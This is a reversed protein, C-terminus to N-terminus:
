GWQFQDAQGPPFRNEMKERDIKFDELNLLFRLVTAKKINQPVKQGDTIYSVSKGKEALASIVNGIHRTEDWKTILVSLYNFPEFQQLIEEIDSAKTSASLVLHLEAWKPCGELLEKMEGLMVADKPGKGFTDVLFLDTVESYAAIENKLEQRNKACFVPLKMIKAFSELQEIAGIRYQDITIMRVAIAPKEQIKVGYHAALKAITTTKGVGTPGVFVMVRNRRSIAPEEYISISEGIWQLLQDQVATFNDLTEFPLEKRLRELMKNIYKESFDNNKLMQAAQAFAPHDENKASSDIKEKIEQLSDLIQQQKQLNEKEALIQKSNRGVIALVKEKAEELDMAPNQAPQEGAGVKPRPQSSIAHAHHLSAPPSQLTKNVPTFYFDVEVGDKGFLGWLGGIKVPRIGYITFAQKYKEAIKLECDKRNEGRETYMEM